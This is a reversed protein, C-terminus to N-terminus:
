IFFFFFNNISYKDLLSLLIVTSIAYFATIIYYELNIQFIEICFMLICNQVYQFIPNEEGSLGAISLDVFKRPAPRLCLLPAM